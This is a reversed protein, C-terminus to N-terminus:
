IEWVLKNEEAFKKLKQDMLNGDLRGCEGNLLGRLVAVMEDFLPAFYGDNGIVDEYRYKHLTSYLEMGTFMQLIAAEWRKDSRKLTTNGSYTYSINIKPQANVFEQLADNHNEKENM